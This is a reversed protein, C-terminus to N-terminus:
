DLTSPNSLVFEDSWTPHAAKSVEAVRYGSRYDCTGIEGANAPVKLPLGALFDKKGQYYFDM